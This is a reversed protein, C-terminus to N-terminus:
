EYRLVVMPDVQTARRAPLYNALWAVGLLLLPVVCFVQLDTPSMGNLLPALLHTTGLALVIGLVTGVAVLKLGQRVLLLVLDRPQGGLALRIGIELRRRTVSYSVVGYVGIVSLLLALGGLFSFLITAVRAPWLARYTQQRITRLNSLALDPNLVAIQQGIKAVIPDPDGDTRL